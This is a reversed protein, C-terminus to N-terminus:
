GFILWRNTQSHVQSVASSTASRQDPLPFSSLAAPIKRHLVRDVQYLKIWPRAHFLCKAAWANLRVPPGIKPMPLALFLVPQVLHNSFETKNEALVNSNNSVPFSEM